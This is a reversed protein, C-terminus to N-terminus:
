SSEVLALCFHPHRMTLTNAPFIQCSGPAASGTMASKSADPLHLHHSVETRDFGASSDNPRGAKPELQTPRKRSRFSFRLGNEGIAAHSQKLKPGCGESAQCDVSGHPEPHRRAFNAHPVARRRCARSFDPVPSLCTDHSNEAAYRLAGAEGPPDSASAGVRVDRDPLPGGVADGLRGAAARHVVHLAGGRVAKDGPAGTTFYEGTVGAGADILAHRAPDAGSDSNCYGAAPTVCRAM